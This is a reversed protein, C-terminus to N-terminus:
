QSFSSCDAVLFAVENGSCPMKCNSITMFRFRGETFHVRAFSDAANFTEIGPYTRNLELPITADNFYGGKGFKIQDNNWQFMFREPQYRLIEGDRMADWEKTDCFYTDGVGANTAGSWSLGMVFVCCWCLPFIPKHPKTM